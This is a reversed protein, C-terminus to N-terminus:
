RRWYVTLASVSLLTIAISIVRAISFLNKTERDRAFDM